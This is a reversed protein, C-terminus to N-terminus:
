PVVQFPKLQEAIKAQDGVVVITMKGPSLYSEAVRQIEAPTVTMVKPVYDALYSRPLDQADVFQLQNTVADASVTNRLVFVGALYNQIGKLEAASPPEKRIRDIENFIEKLAPGTVATTVDAVQIWIGLHRRSRIASYPSYTYGKDERINSTIRSGFSGGLMADMASVAIYDPSTADPVALGLYITSQEAAPRDISQLSRTAVPKAAPITSPSGRTWDRFANEIAARLGPDLKGAM